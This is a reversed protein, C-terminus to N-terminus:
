KEIDKIEEETLVTLKKINEIPINLSLALKATRIKEEFKGEVKGEEYAFDVTNKFERYTKLNM